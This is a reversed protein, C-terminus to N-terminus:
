NQPKSWLAIVMPVFFTKKLATGMLQAVWAPNLQERKKGNTNNKGQDAQGFSEVMAHLYGRDIGHNYTDSGIPGTGKYESARPTPWNVQTALNMGNKGKMQSPSLKTQRNENPSARPTAWKKTMEVQAELAPANRNMEAPGSRGGLPLRPTQWNKVTVQTALSMSNRPSKELNESYHGNMASVPTSWTIKELPLSLFANERMHHASKRRQSSEASLQTVLTQFDETFKTMDWHLTPESMKLSAGFLDLQKLTRFYIRGFTDHIKIEKKTDPLVLHSAHIDALSETYKIELDMQRSPKLMRGSLPQRWFVRKWGHLWTQVSLPKSKWMLSLKSKASLVNWDEKSALFDPAFASYMPHNSPIIWM